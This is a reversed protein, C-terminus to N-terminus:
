CEVRVSRVWREAYANARPARPIKVTTVGVAAFVADCTATFEAAPAAREQVDFVVDLHHGFGGIPLLTQCQGLFVQGVDREDVDLHRDHVADPHGPPDGCVRGQGPHM